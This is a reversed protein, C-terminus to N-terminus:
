VTFVSGGAAIGGANIDFGAWSPGDPAQEDDEVPQASLLDPKPALVARSGVGVGGSLVPQVGM